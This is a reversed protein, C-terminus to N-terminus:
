EVQSSLFEAKVYGGHYVKCWLEGDKSYRFGLVSIRSGGKIKTMYRGGPTERKNVPDKTKVVWIQEDIPLDFYSVDAWGERGDNTTIKAYGNEITHMEGGVGYRITGIKEGEPSPTTRLWVWEGKTVACVCPAAKAIGLILIEIVLFFVLVAIVKNIAM